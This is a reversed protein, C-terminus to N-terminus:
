GDIPPGGCYGLGDFFFSRCTEGDETCEADDTCIPRCRGSPECYGRAFGDEVACVKQLGSAVCTEGILATDLRPDGDPFCTDTSEAGFNFVCTGETCATGASWDCTETCRNGFTDPDFGCVNGEPCNALPLPEVPTCEPDFPACTTYSCDPDYAGCACHCAEGDAWEDDDCSWTDPPFRGDVTVDALEVCDGGEIPTSERTFPDVEVEILRVNTLTADFVQQYPDRRTVLTGRDAFFARDPAIPIYICHACSGFNEDPTGPGLEFTGVDEAPAYREFLVVLRDGETPPILSAQFGVSVDDAVELAWATASVAQCGEPADATADSMRADTGGGDNTADAGADGSADPGADPAAGDDGCACALALLGMWLQKM